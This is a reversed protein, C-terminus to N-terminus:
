CPVSVVVASSLAFCQFEEGPLDPSQGRSSSMRHLKEDDDAQDDECNGDKEYNKEDRNGVVLVPNPLELEAHISELLDKLLDLKSDPLRILTARLSSSWEGRGLSRRCIGRGFRGARLPGGLLLGGSSWLEV